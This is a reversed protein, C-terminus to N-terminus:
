KTWPSEMYTRPGVDSGEPIALRERGNREQQSISLRPDDVRGAPITSRDRPGVLNQCGALLLLSALCLLRRM